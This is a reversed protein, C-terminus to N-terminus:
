HRQSFMRAILKPWPEPAFGTAARFRSSDLSRDVRLTDDPRIEIQKGYETAILQLLELKSIPAASLHYLGHLEAHPLVWQRIIRALEVSPLGSYIAHRFGRVSGQQALFWELLGNATGKEHGIGSTRLTLVHPRNKIEGMAKSQGYLDEADPLDEETYMGKRGSFVCDSSLQIMRAGLLACYGALRHSFLANLPLSMLPDNATDLQKIIGVANIVVHPRVRELARVVTHDQLIDVGTVVHERREATFHALHAGSRVTGFVEIKDVVPLIRFLANGMM